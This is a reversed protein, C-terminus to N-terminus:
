TEPFPVFGERRAARRLDQDYAVFIQCDADISRVTLASALQVSDYARLGHLGAFRAAAKFTERDLLVTVLPGDELELDDEFREILRMCVDSGIDGIRVKRWLAAIVEVRAIESVYMADLQRVHESGSEDVYLKVIASSDAFARM